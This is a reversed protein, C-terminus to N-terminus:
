LKWRSSKYIKHIDKIDINKLILLELDNGDFRSLFMKKSPDINYAREVTFCFRFGKNKLRRVVEKNFSYKTGFPFSFFKLGNKFNDKIITNFNILDKNIQINSSLGFNLHEHGHSGLMENKYLYKIQKKNIYLNKFYSLYNKDMFKKELFKYTINSSDFDLSYNLLFKIKKNTNNGYKYAKNLNPLNPDIKLKFNMEKIFKKTTNLLKNPNYTSLLYHLIHVKNNNKNYIPSTNVFFLPKIKKKRLFTSYNLYQERLGDDFTILVNIENNLFLENKKDELLQLPTIINSQSLLYKIHKQFNICTIGNIGNYRYNFSDRVYHYNFVLLM